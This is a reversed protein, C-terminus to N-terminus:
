LKATLTEDRIMPTSIFHTGKLRSQCHADYRIAQLIESM